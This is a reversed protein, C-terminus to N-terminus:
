GKRRPQAPAAEGRMECEVAGSCDAGLFFGGLVPHNNTVSCSVAVSAGHWGVPPLECQRGAWPHGRHPRVLHLAVPCPLHSMLVALDGPFPFSFVVPIHSGAHHPSLGSLSCKVGQLFGVVLLIGVLWFLYFQM